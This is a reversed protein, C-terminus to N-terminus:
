AGSESRGRATGGTEPGDGSIVRLGLIREAEEIGRQLDGVTKLEQLNVGINVLQMAIDASVGSVIMSAGLLRSAEVAQVLYNAVSADMVPVGTIDIVAVKARHDRIANLLQNTLQQARATDIIGIIPLILLRDRVRLVPTSLQLISEQQQRITRERGEVLATAITIAINNAVPRYADLARSLGAFDSHYDNVIARGFVERLILVASIIQAPAAARTAVQGSIMEVYDRVGEYSTGVMADLYVDALAAGRSRAQESTLGRLVGADSSRAAWEELLVDQRGRLRTVLEHRVEAMDDGDPLLHLGESGSPRGQSGALRHPGVENPMSTPALRAGGVGVDKM